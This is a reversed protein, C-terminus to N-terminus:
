ASTLQSPKATTIISLVTIRPGAPTEGQQAPLAPFKHDTQIIATKAPKAAMIRIATWCRSLLVLLAAMSKDGGAPRVTAVDSIREIPRSSFTNMDAMTNGGQFIIIFM